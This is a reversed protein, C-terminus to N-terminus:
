TTWPCELVTQGVLDDRTDQSNVEVRMVLMVGEREEVRKVFGIESGGKSWRLEWAPESM